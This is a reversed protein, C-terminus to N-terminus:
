YYSEKRQQEKPEIMNTMDKMCPGPALALLRPNENEGPGAM